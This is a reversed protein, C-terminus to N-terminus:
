ASYEAKNKGTRFWLATTLKEKWEKEEHGRKERVVQTCEM